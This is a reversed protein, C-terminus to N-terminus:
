AGGPRSKSREPQSHNIGKMVKNILFVCGVWSLYNGRPFTRNEVQDSLKRKPVTCGEEACTALTIRPIGCLIDEVASGAAAAGGCEGVLLPPPPLSAAVSADVAFRARSFRRRRRSSWRTCAKWLAPRLRSAGSEVAKWEGVPSATSRRPAIVCLGSPIVGLTAAGSRLAAADFGHRLHGRLGHELVAHRLQIGSVGNCRGNCVSVEM